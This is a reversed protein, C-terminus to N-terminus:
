EVRLLGREHRYAFVGCVGCDPGDPLAGLDVPLLAVCFLGHASPTKAQLHIRLIELESLDVVELPLGAVFLRAGSRSVHFKSYAFFSLKGTCLCAAPEPQM